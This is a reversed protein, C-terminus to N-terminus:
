FGGQPMMHHNFSPTFVYAKRLTRENDSDTCM